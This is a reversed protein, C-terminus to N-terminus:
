CLMTSLYNIQVMEEHGTSPNVDFKLKMIGANLIVIDLRILQEQARQVFSQISDYSSMDLLWVTVHATTYEKRLFEAAAEGKAASRVAIILHSLRMALIQKAAELGLGTNAGTIITVRDSLDVDPIPSEKSRFQTEIFIKPFYPATNPALEKSPAM